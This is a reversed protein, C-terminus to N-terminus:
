WKETWGELNSEEHSAEGKPTIHMELDLASLLRFLTDLRVNEPKNEFASVTDQRLSVEEAISSQSLNTLKRQDRCYIALDKPSLVLM